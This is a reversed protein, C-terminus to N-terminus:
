DSDTVSTIAVADTLDVSNDTTSASIVLHRTTLYTDTDVVDVMDGVKMGYNQGDSIYGDADVVTSADTSEYRWLNGSGAFAPVILRLGSAAYAM